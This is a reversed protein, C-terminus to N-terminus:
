EVTSIMYEVVNRFDAESYNATGARVYMHGKGNIVSQTLGVLGQKAIRQDWASPVGIKPAGAEGTDHCSFCIMDYVKYGNNIRLHRAKEEDIASNVTARNEDDIASNMMYAIIDRIHAESELASNGKSYMHNPGDIVAQYLTDEGFTLLETWDDKLGLRPAGDVGTAHCVVCLQNYMTEGAKLDAPRQEEALLSNSFFNLFVAFVLLSFQKM